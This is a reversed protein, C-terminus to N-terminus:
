VVEGGDWHDRGGGGRGCGRHDRWRRAEVRQRRHPPAPQGQKSGPSVGSAKLARVQFIFTRKRGKSDVAVQAVVGHVDERTDEGEHRQRGRAGGVEAPGSVSM